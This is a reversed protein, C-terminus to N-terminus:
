ERPKIGFDRQPLHLSALGRRTNFAEITKVIDARDAGGFLMLKIPLGIGSLDCHHTKGDSMYAWAAASVGVLILPVGDGQGDPGVAFVLKQEPTAAPPTDGAAAPSRPHRSM